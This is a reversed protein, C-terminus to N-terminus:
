RSAGDPRMRGFASEGRTSFAPTGRAAPVRKLASAGRAAASLSLPRGSLAQDVAASARASAGPCWAATRYSERGAVPWGLLVARGANRAPNRTVPVGSRNGPRGARMADRDADVVRVRRTPPEPEVRPFGLSLHRPHSLLAPAGGANLGTGARKMGSAVVERTITLGPLVVTNQITVAM